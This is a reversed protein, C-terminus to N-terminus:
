RAPPVAVKQSLLYAMDRIANGGDWMNPNNRGYETM